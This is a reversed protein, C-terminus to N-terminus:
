TTSATKPAEGADKPPESSQESGQSNGSNSLRDIAAETKALGNMEADIRADHKGVANARRTDLEAYRGILRDADAELARNQADRLDVVHDLKDLISMAKRGEALAHAINAAASIMETARPLADLAERLTTM